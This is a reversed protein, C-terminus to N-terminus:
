IDLRVFLKASVIREKAILREWICFLWATASRSSKRQRRIVASEKILRLQVEVLQSESALLQMLLYMNLKASVAKVALRRHWGEVDNNSRIRRQFVQSQSTVFRRKTEKTELTNYKQQIINIDYQRKQRM